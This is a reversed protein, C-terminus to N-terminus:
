ITFYCYFLFNSNYNQLVFIHNQFEFIYNKSDNKAIQIFFFLKKRSPGTSSELINYISSHVVLELRACSPGTTCYQTWDLLHVCEYVSGMLTQNPGILCTHMGCVLGLWALRAHSPGITCYQTWDLLHVYRLSSGNTGSQTWDLGHLALSSGKM